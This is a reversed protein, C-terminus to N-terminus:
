EPGELFIFFAPLFEPLHNSPGFSAMFQGQCTPNYLIELRKICVTFVSPYHSLPYLQELSFSSM